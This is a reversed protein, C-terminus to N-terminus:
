IALGLGREPLQLGLGPGPEAACIGPHHQFSVLLGHFQELGIRLVAIVLLELLPSMWRKGRQLLMQAAGLCQLATRGPSRCASTSPLTGRIYPGFCLGGRWRGAVHRNM